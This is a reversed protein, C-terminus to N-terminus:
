FWNQIHQKAFYFFQLLLRCSCFQLLEMVSETVRDCMCVLKSDPEINWYILERLFLEQWLQVLIKKSVFIAKFIFVNRIFYVFSICWIISCIFLTWLILLGDAIIVRGFLSSSSFECVYDFLDRSFDSFSTQAFSSSLIMLGIVITSLLTSSM